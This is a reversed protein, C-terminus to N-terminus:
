GLGLEWSGVGLEWSRTLYSIPGARAPPSIPLRAVKLHYHGCPTFTRTRERAGKKISPNLIRHDKGSKRGHKRWAPHVNVGSPLYRCSGRRPPGVEVQRFRDAE